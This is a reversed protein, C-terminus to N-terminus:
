KTIYSHFFHCQFLLRFVSLKTGNKSQLLFCFLTSSMLMFKDIHWFTFSYIAFQKDSHYIFILKSTINFHSKLLWYVPHQVHFTQSIYKNHMTEPLRKQLGQMIQKSTLILQLCNEFFTIWTILTDPRLKASFTRNNSSLSRKFMKLKRSSISILTWQRNLSLGSRCSM